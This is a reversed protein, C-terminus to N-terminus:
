RLLDGHISTYTDVFRRRTRETVSDTAVTIAIEVAGGFDADTAADYAVLGSASKLYSVLIPPPACRHLALDAVLAEWPDHANRYRERARAIGSSHYALGARAQAGPSSPAHCEALYAILQDIAAVPWSRYVSVNGFFWRIEPREIMIAALGSWVSFLGLIARQADSNVVSRGLEVAAPLVEDRFAPPFEFLHSTRLWDLRGLRLVDACAIFRYMSLIERHMPDWAVLQRYPIEQLDFEDIDSAVNRGAGVRRYEHERIRGIEALVAPCQAGILVYIEVDRFRCLLRDATLEAELAAPSQPAAIPVTHESM